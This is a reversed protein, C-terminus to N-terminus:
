RRRLGKWLDTVDRSIKNDAFHAIVWLAALLLVSGGALMNIIVSTQAALRETTGGKTFLQATFISAVVSATASGGAGLLIIAVAYLRVYSASQRFSAFAVFGEISSSGAEEPAAKPWHYILSRAM